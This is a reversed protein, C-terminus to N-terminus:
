LCHSVGIPQLSSSVPAIGRLIGLLSLQWRKLDLHSEIIRWFQNWLVSSALYDQCAGIDYLSVAISPSNILFWPLGHIPHFNKKVESMIYSILLIMLKAYIRLLTFCSSGSLSAYCDLKYLRDTSNLYLYFPPSYIWYILMCFCSTTSIFGSFGIM